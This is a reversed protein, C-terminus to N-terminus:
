LKYAKKPFEYALQPALLPPKTKRCATSPWWARSSRVTSAGRWTTARRSHVPFRAHRRQLRRHQLLGRDRHDARPVAAHRRATTSGGPPGSSAAGSLPRRAARARALLRDRRAHVRHHHADRDNGFRDLLPQLAGVYDTRPRSTPAWTAASRSRVAACQSQALRGSPDAAGTRRRPEHAGDRDADPRPVSGCRRRHAAGEVIRAFLRKPM